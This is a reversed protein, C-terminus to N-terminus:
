SSPEWPCHGDQFMVSLEGIHMKSPPVAVVDDLGRAKAWAVTERWRAAKERDDSSVWGSLILPIPPEDSPRAAKKLALHVEHWVTPEPCVQARQIRPSDAAM